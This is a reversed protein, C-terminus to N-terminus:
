RFIFVFLIVFSRFHNCFNTCQRFLCMIGEMESTTVTMGALGATNTQSSAVRNYSYTGLKWSSEVIPPEPIPDDEKGGCSFLIVSRRLNISPTHISRGQISWCYMVNITNTVFDLHFNPEKLSTTINDLYLM